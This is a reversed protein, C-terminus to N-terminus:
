RYSEFTRVSRHLSGFNFRVHSLGESETKTVSAYKTYSYVEGLLWKPLLEHEELPEKDGYRNKPSPLKDESRSSSAIFKPDQSPLGTDSGMPKNVFRHNM